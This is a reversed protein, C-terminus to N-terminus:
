NKEAVAACKSPNKVKLHDLEDEWVEEEFPWHFRDEALEEQAPRRAPFNLASQLHFDKTASTTVDLGLLEAQGFNHRLRKALYEAEALATKASELKYRRSREAWNSRLATVFSDWNEPRVPGYKRSGLSELKAIEEEAANLLKQNEMVAPLHLLYRQYRFPAEAGFYSILESYFDVAKPKRALLEDLAALERMYRESFRRLGLEAGGFDCMRKRNLVEILHIDPAFGYQFYPSQLGLTKGLSEQHRGARYEAYAQETMVELRNRGDKTLAEYLGLSEQTAGQQLLYRALALRAEQRVPEEGTAELERLRDTAASKGAKPDRLEALSRLLLLRQRLAKSAIRSEAFHSDKMRALVFNAKDGEPLVQRVKKLDTGRVADEVFAMSDFADLEKWFIRLYREQSDVKLGAALEYLYRAANEWGARRSLLGAFLADRPQFEKANDKELALEWLAQVASPFKGDLGAFLADIRKVANEFVIPGPPLLIKALKAITLQVPTRIRKHPVIRLADQYKEAIERGRAEPRIERKPMRMERAKRAFERVAKRDLGKLDYVPLPRTPLVVRERRPIQVKPVTVNPASPLAPAAEVKEEVFSSPPVPGYVTSAPARSGARAPAQRVPTAQIERAEEGTQEIPHRFGAHASGALGFICSLLLIRKM